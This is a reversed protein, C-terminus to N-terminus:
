HSICLEQPRVCIKLKDSIMIRHQKLNVIVLWLRLWELIAQKKWSPLFLHRELIMHHFKVIGDESQRKKVVNYIVQNSLRQAQIKGIILVRYSLAGKHDGRLALWQKVTTM